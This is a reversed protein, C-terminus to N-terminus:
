ETSSRSMQGLASLQDTGRRFGHVWSGKASVSFVPQYHGIRRDELVQDHVNDLIWTREGIEVALVAHDLGRRRDNLAVVQMDALPVGLANLMWMKAIAYDECDGAANRVTESLTAWHDARGYLERDSTYRVLANVRRNVYTLKDHGAKSKAQRYADSWRPWARARCIGKSQPCPGTFFRAADEKIIKKWRASIALPSMRVAVSGFVDPGAPLSAVRPEHATGPLALSAMAAEPGAAEPASADAAGADIGISPRLELAALVVLNDHPKEQRAEGASVATAPHLALAAALLCAAAAKKFISAGM